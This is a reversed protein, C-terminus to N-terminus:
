KNGKLQSTSFHAIQISEAELVEWEQVSMTNYGLMEREVRQLESFFGSNPRIIPRLKLVHQYADKLTRGERTMLYHICVSSSRSIGAVCHIMVASNYSRARDIFDASKNLDKALAGAQGKFDQLPLRLYEFEQPYHNGVEWSANLIFGINTRYTLEKHNSANREGGLYMYDTLKATLASQHADWLDLRVQQKTRPCLRTAVQIKEENAWQKIKEEDAETEKAEELAKQMKAEAEIAAKSSKPVYRTAKNKKMLMPPRPPRPGRAGGGGGGGRAGRGARAGGRPLGRPPAHGSSARLSASSAAARSVGDDSIKDDDSLYGPFLDDESKHQGKMVKEVVDGLRGFKYRLQGYQKWDLHPCGQHAYHGLKGCKYCRKDVVALASSISTTTPLEPQLLYYKNM